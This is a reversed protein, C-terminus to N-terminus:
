LVKQVNESRRMYKRNVDQAWPFDTETIVLHNQDAKISVTEQFFVGVFMNELSNRFIKLFIKKISHRRVVGSQETVASFTVPVGRPNESPLPGYKVFHTFWFLIFFFFILWIDTIVKQYNFAVFNPVCIITSLFHKGLLYFWILKQSNLREM